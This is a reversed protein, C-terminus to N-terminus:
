RNFISGPFILISSPYRRVQGCARFIRQVILGCPLMPPRNGHLILVTAINQAYARKMFDINKDLDEEIGLRIIHIGASKLHALDADQDSANFQLPHVFNVGRVINQAHVLGFWVVVFASYCHL